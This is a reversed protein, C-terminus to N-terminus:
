GSGGAVALPRKAKGFSSLFGDVLKHIASSIIAIAPESYGDAAVLRRDNLLPSGGVIGVSVGLRNIKRAFFCAAHRIMSSLSSSAFRRRVRQMIETKRM